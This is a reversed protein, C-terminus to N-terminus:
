LQTNRPRILTVNQVTSNYGPVQLGIDDLQSKFITGVIVVFSVLTVLMPVLSDPQLLIM